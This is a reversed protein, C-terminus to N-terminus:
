NCKLKSGAFYGRNQLEVRKAVSMKEREAIRYIEQQLINWELRSLWCVGMYCGLLEIAEDPTPRKESFM